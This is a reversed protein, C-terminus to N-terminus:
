MSPQNAELAPRPRQPTSVLKKGLILGWGTTIGITSDRSRFLNRNPAWVGFAVSPVGMHYM